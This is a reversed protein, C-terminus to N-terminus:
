MRTVNKKSFHSLRVLTKDGFRGKLSAGPVDIVGKGRGDSRWQCKCMRPLLEIYSQCNPLYYPRFDLHRISLVVGFGLPPQIMVTCNMGQLFPKNRSSKLIGSSNSNESGLNWIGENTKDCLEEVYATKYSAAACLTQAFLIFLVVCYAKM